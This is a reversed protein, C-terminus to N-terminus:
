AVGLSLFNGPPGAWYMGEAKPFGPGPDAAVRGREVQGERRKSGMRGMVTYVTLHVIVGRTELRGTPRTARM